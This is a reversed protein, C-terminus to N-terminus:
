VVRHLMLIIGTYDMLPYLYRPTLDCAMFPSLQCEFGPLLNGLISTSLGKAVNGRLHDSPVLHKLTLYPRTGQRRHHKGVLPPARGGLGTFLACKDKPLPPAGPWLKAAMASPPGETRGQELGKQATLLGHTLYFSPM